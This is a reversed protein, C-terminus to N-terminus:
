STPQYHRHLRVLLVAVLDKAIVWEETELEFNRLKLSKNATMADIACCYKIAFSLMYYTSNWQTVINHPLIRSKLKLEKCYRAM